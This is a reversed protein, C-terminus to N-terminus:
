ADGAADEEPSPLKPAMVPPGGANVQQNFQFTHGQPMPFRGAARFAMEMFKPNTSKLAKDVLKATLEPQAIALMLQGMDIHFAIGGKVLEGMFDAHSIRVQSCLTEIRTTQQIGPSLGDWLTVMEALRKDSSRRALEMMENRGGLLDAYYDLGPHGSFRVLANPGPPVQGKAIDYVRRSGKRM